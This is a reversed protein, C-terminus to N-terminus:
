LYLGCQSPMMATCSDCATAPAPISAAAGCGTVKGATYGQPYHSIWSSCMDLVAIDKGSPLVQSYYRHRLARSDAHVQPADERCRVMQHHAGDPQRLIVVIPQHVAQSKLVCKTLAAIAGDDIHTVFRPQGYFFTDPTEDYRKFDDDTFPFEDPWKVNELVQDVSLRQLKPLRGRLLLMHLNKVRCADVSRARAEQM